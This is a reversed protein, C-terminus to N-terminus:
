LPGQSSSSRDVLGRPRRRRPVSAPQRRRARHPRLRRHVAPVRTEPISGVWELQLNEVNQFRGSNKIYDWVGYVIALLEDRIAENDRITDLEGGFEFWWYCCRWDRPDTRQEVIPPTEKKFDRATPRTSAVPYGADKSYFMILLRADELRGELPAWSEGYESRAERGCPFEAGAQYALIGDGLADVWLPSEFRFCRESM